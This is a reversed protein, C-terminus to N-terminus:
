EHENEETYQERTKKNDEVSKRDHCTKCLKQLGERGVFLRMACEGIQSFYRCSGVPVCHDVQIQSSLFWNKCHACQHERKIRKDSGKYPRTNENLCAYREGDRSWARRMMNIIIACRKREAKEEETLKKPM